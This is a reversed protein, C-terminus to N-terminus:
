EGVFLSLCHKGFCHADALEGWQEAARHLLQQHDDSFLNGVCLDGRHFCPLLRGDPYIVVSESGMRCRGPHAPEPELGYLYGFLRRYQQLDYDRFYPALSSSLGQKEAQTMLELAYDPLANLSEPIYVPQYIIGVGPPKNALQYIHEILSINRRTIVSILSATMGLSAIQDLKAFTDEIYRDAKDDPLALTNLSISLYNLGAGALRVLMADSLRHGNSLIMSLIGQSRLMDLLSFLSPELTPEGGTIIVIEPAIRELFIGLIDLKDEPFSDLEDDGSFRNFCFDCTLNCRATYFIFVTLPTM